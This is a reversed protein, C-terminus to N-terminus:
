TKYFDNDPVNVLSTEVVIFSPFEIEPETDLLCCEHYATRSKTVKYRYPFNKNSVDAKGRILICTCNLLPKEDSAPIIKTKQM